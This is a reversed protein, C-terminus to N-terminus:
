QVVNGKMGRVAREIWGTLAFVAARSVRDLGDGKLAIRYQAISRREAWLSDIMPHGPMACSDMWATACNGQVDRLNDIEILVGPSYRGFDEAIAIKYSFAGHMHRFNVLMAMARGDVDIRLMDLMDAAFANALATRFFASTSTDSAIATGQAGKWGSAELALFDNYWRDLDAAQTLRSHVVAGSEELRNMLRRIEKRKKPRVHTQWYDDASLASHLMARDYRDVLLKGRRQATCVADLAQVCAGDTNQATLHLFNGVWPAGDLQALFGEWALIEYGARVLPAGFFCHPHVWNAVNAFPYRGHGSKATVPMLGILLDGEYVELMRVESNCDLYELAPRLLAPHYFANAECAHDALDVWRAPPDLPLSTTAFSVLQSPALAMNM